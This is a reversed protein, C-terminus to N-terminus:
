FPLAPQLVFLSPAVVSPVLLHSRPRHPHSPAVGGEPSPKEATTMPCFVHPAGRQRDTIRGGGEDTDRGAKTDGKSIPPKM